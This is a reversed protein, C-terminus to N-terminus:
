KKKAASKKAPAKKAAAKKVPAEKAPAKKAAPKGKAKAESRTRKRDLVGHLASGDGRPVAPWLRRVRDDFEVVAVSDTPRLRDVVMKACRVAEALPRGAMSGSKDIVLALAQPTRQAAPGPPADPAQVRVLVDLTNDHGAALGARLPQLLVRTSLAAPLPTPTSM